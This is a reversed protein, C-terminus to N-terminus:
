ELNVPVGIDRRLWDPLNSADIAHHNSRPRRIASATAAVGAVARDVLRRAAVGMTAIAQGVRAGLSDPGGFQWHRPAEVVGDFSHFLSATAKRM